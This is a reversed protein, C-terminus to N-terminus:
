ILINKIKIKIKIKIKNKIKDKPRKTDADSVRLKGLIRDLWYLNGMTPNQLARLKNNLAM